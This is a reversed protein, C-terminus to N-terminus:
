WIPKYATVWDVEIVGASAAPPPGRDIATEYQLVLHMPTDPVGTVATGQPVGDITFTLSNPLWEIGYTHWQEGIISVTSHRYDWSDPNVPDGGPFIAARITDNHTLNHVEPFDVEGEHWDNSDPWLLPVVKYGPIPKPVRLRIEYKGYTHGWTKMAIMANVYNTGRESFLKARLISNDVSLTKAANYTGYGSTDRSGAVYPFWSSRYASSPFGGLSVDTTFDDAFYQTWKSQNGVPMAGVVRSTDALAAGSSSLVISGVVLSWLLAKRTRKATNPEPYPRPEPVITIPETPVDESPIM